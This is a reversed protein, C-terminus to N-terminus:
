LKFIESVLTAVIWAPAIFGIGCVAFLIMDGAGCTHFKLCEVQTSSYIMIIIWAIIGAIWGAGTIKKM